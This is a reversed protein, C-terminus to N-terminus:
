VVLPDAIPQTFTQGDLQYEIESGPPAGLKQLTHRVFILADGLDVLRIDISLWQTRGAADQQGDGGTIDGVGREHLAAHLPDAFREGFDLMSLEGVLKARVPHAPNVPMQECIVCIKASQFFPFPIFEWGIGM